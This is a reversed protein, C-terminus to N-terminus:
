FVYVVIIGAPNSRDAIYVLAYPKQLLTHPKIKHKTLFLGLQNEGVGIPFTYPGYLGNNM